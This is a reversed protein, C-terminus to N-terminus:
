CMGTHLQRQRLESEEVNDEMGVVGEKSVQTRRLIPGLHKREEVSLEDEHGVAPLRQRRSVLRLSPSVSDRAFSYDEDHDYGEYSGPNSQKGSIKNLLRQFGSAVSNLLGGAAFVALAATTAVVTTAVTTAASGFAAFLPSASLAFIASSIAAPPFFVCGAALLLAVGSLSLLKWHNKLFDLM